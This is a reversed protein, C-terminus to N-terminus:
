KSKAYIRVPTGKFSYQLRLAKEIFRLHRDKVSQPHNVFVTFAPPETGVQTMYLFKLHKGKYSPFAKPAIATSLFRNLEPTSIRKKRETMIEDIEPFIKTIRTKEMASATLFPAHRMAWMSRKLEREFRKYEIEPNEVADWKNLIFLSGKGQEEVLGAIKKDQETIGESADLVIIAVDAREISKLARVVSFREIAYLKGKKRIGATDILLYKKGYYTCVSDISDRTTGPLPSVVLRKKGLLSNVLTSKGVNPRGVVAIKPLNEIAADTEGSEKPMLSTIKDMLEEFGLGTMASVPFIEDAGIRYFELAGTEKSPTDVKNVAWVVQKGSSRIINALELDAPNIGEKGDMLHIIVDSEEIAFAAQERVQAAIAHNEHPLGEAYFGGTDIVIFSKGEWQANGYNRDRTVGPTSETIATNDSLRATRLMKNFLTSKGTNPKGIIAIIPKM